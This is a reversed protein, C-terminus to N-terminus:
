AAKQERLANALRYLGALDIGGSIWPLQYCPQGARDLRDQQLNQALATTAQECVETALGAAIEPSHDLGALKLGLALLAQDLGGNAAQQLEEPPLALPRTMNVIIGGARIAGLSRLEDIGDLTEQVPMEELLTVFHVVTQPSRIVRQVSDAHGR